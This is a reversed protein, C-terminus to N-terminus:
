EVLEFHPFETAPQGLRAECMQEMPEWLAIVEPHQHGIRFGDKKWSFIEAFCTTAESDKGRLILRPQENVLGLRNLTPWHLKLLEM